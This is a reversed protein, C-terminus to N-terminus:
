SISEKGSLMHNVLPFEFLANACRNRAMGQIKDVQAVLTHSIGQHAAIKKIIAVVPNDKC